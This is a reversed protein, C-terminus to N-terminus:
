WGAFSFIWAARRECLDHLQVANGDCDQLITNPLYKGVRAAFPGPPPCLSAGSDPAGSDAADSGTGPTPDSQGPDASCAPLLLAAIAAVAATTGLTPVCGRLM